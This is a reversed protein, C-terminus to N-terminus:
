VWYSAICKSKGSGENRERHDKLEQISKFSM